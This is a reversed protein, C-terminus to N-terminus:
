SFWSKWCFAPIFIWSKDMIMIIKGAIYKKEGHDRHVVSFHLHVKFYSGFCFQIINKWTNWTNKWLKPRKVLNWSNELDLFHNQWKRTKNIWSAPFGSSLKSLSQGKINKSWIDPVYERYNWVVRLFELKGKCCKNCIIMACVHKLSLTSCFLFM